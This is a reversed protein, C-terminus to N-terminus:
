GLYSAFIVLINNKSKDELKDKEFILGNPATL